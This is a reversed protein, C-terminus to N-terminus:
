IHWVKGLAGRETGLVLYTTWTVVLRVRSSGARERTPSVVSVVRNGNFIITHSVTRPLVCHRTGAPCRDLSLRRSLFAGWLFVRKM